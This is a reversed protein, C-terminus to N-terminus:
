IFLLYKIKHLILYKNKTVRTDLNQNEINQLM